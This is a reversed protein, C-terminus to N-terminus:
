CSYTTTINLPYPMIQNYPPQGLCEAVSVFKYGAVRAMKIVAPLVQHATSESTELLSALISHPKKNFQRRFGDIVEKVNANKASDGADYSWKVIPTRTSTESPPRLFRSTVGLLKTFAEQPKEM